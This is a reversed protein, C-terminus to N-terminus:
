NHMNKQFKILYEEKIINILSSRVFECFCSTIYIIICAFIIITITNVNIILDLSILIVYLVDKILPHEHIIYVALTLPAIKLIMSKIKKNKIKIKKFFMFLCISSLTVIVSNYSYFMDALVIGSKNAIMLILIRTGYLLFSLVLYLILYKNKDYDKGIYLKIYGGVLYLTIFWLIGYGKTGDVVDFKLYHLISSVWSILTAIILLKEIQKKNANKLIINLFPAILYLIIYCTIFWYTKLTIPFICQLTERLSMNWKCLKFIIFITLSYMLVQAILKLIKKGSCKSDVLFYGSILVYCNVAVISFAEVLWAIETNVGNFLERKLLGMNLFCHMLLIMFMLIIRLLEIGEERESKHPDIIEKNEEIIEEKIYM